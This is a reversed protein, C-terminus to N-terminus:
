RERHLGLSLYLVLSIVYLAAFFLYTGRVGYADMIAGGLLNCVIAPFSNGLAYYTAVSLSALRPPVIKGFYKVIEVLLIGNLIGQLFFTGLLVGTSPGMAYLAFRLLGAVCGIIILKETSIRKNLWPVLFMFPAESGAMLLFALGVGGIDGGAEIFLFSFYTNNSMTPGLAFFSFVLLYIFDRDRFLEKITIAEGNEQKKSYNVPEPFSMIIFGAIMFAIAHIVFNIRLGMTEALQGCLFVAVAYGVAGVARIAPYNEKRDMVLSDCLGHSPGQNFYLLGYILTYALFGTIALSVLASAAALIFMTMIVVRKRSSNAYVRGWFMGGIVAAGTGFATVVGVQTGTFGISSLYQGILPCVAGLPFYIFFYLIYSKYRTTFEKM